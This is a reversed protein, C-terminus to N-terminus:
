KKITVQKNESMFKAFDEVGVEKIMDICAYRDSKFIIEFFKAFLNNVKKCDHLDSFEKCDACTQYNNEKNCSRIKCWTAKENEYCGPCKGKLYKSCAGCYLGCYAVLDKNVEIEKM